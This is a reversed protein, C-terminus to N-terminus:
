SLEYYEKYYAGSIWSNSNGTLSILYGGENQTIDIRGNGVLYPPIVDNIRDELNITTEHSTIFGNSDLESVNLTIEPNEISTEFSLLTPKPGPLEIKKYRFNSKLKNELSSLVKLRSTYVGIITEVKLKLSRNNVVSCKWTGFSTPNLIPNNDLNCSRYWIVGDLPDILEQLRIKENTDEQLYTYQRLLVSRQDEGSYETIGQNGVYGNIEPLLRSVRLLAHNIDPHTMIDSLVTTPDTFDKGMTGEKLSVNLGESNYCIYDGIIGKGTPGLLYYSMITQLMGVTIYKNEGESTELFNIYDSINTISGKDGLYVKYSDSKDPTKDKEEDIVIDKICIYIVGDYVVFDNITYECEPKYVYMGTIVQNGNLKM